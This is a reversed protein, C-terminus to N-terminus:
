TILVPIRGRANLIRESSTDLRKKVEDQSLSVNLTDFWIDRISTEIQELHKTLITGDLYEVHGDRVVTLRVGQGVYQVFQCATNIIHATWLLAQPLSNDPHDIAQILYRSLECNGYGIVEWRGCPYVKNGFTKLLVSKEGRKSLGTLMEFNSKKKGIANEVADELSKRTGKIGSAKPQNSVNEEFKEWVNRMESEVGSFVAGIAGQDDDFFGFYDKMGKYKLTGGGTMEMDSGLVLGEDCTFGIGITMAEEKRLREPRPCLYFPKLLL